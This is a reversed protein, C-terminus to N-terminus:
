PPGDRRGRGKGSAIRKLAKTAEERVWPKASSALGELEALADAAGMQGLAMAAHGAVDEDSLLRVLTPVAERYRLKGLALVFMQRVTGHAPDAVINLIDAAVTEDAIVEMANGIAWRFGVWERPARDFEDLVPRTAIGRAWPVSLARVISEKASADDIRSLWRVLIPIATAYAKRSTRLDDLTVQDFGAARLEEM